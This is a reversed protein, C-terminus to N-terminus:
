IARFQILMHVVRDPICPMTELLIVLQRQLLKRLSLSNISQEWAKHDFMFYLCSIHIIFDLFLTHPSQFLKTPLYRDSALSIRLVIVAVFDIIYAILILLSLKNNWLTDYVKRCTYEMNNFNCPFILIYGFVFVLVLVLNLFRQLRMMNILYRNFLRCYCPCYVCWVYSGQATLGDIEKWHLLVFIKTTKGNEM